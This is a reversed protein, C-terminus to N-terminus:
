AEKETVDDSHWHGGGFWLYVSEENGKIYSFCVLGAQLAMKIAVEDDYRIKQYCVGLDDVFSSLLTTQIHSHRYKPSVLLTSFSIGYNTVAAVAIIKGEWYVVKLCTGPENLHHKRMRFLRKYVRQESTDYRKVFDMVPRRYKEWTNVSITILNM